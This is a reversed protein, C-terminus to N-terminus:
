TNDLYITFGQSGIKVEYESKIKNDLRFREGGKVIGWVGHCSKIGKGNGDVVCWGNMYKNYYVTCHIKSLTNNNVNIICNSRGITIISDNKNNFNYKKIKMKDNRDYHVKLEILSIMNGITISILIEGLVFHNISNQKLLYGHNIKVQMIYPNAKIDTNLNYLYYHSDKRNFYIAFILRSTTKSTFNIIVDVKTNNTNHQQKDDLVHTLNSSNNVGFLTLGDRKHRLSNLEGGANIIYTNNNFINNNNNNTNTNIGNLILTLNSRIEEDSIVINDSLLNCIPMNNNNSNNNHKLVKTTSTVNSNFISDYYNYEDNFTVQKIQSQTNYTSYTPPTQQEENPKTPKLQFLNPFLHNNTSQHESHKPTKNPNTSLPPSQSMSINFSNGKRSPSKISSSSVTSTNNNHLHNPNNSHGCSASNSSYTRPYCSIIETPKTPTQRECCSFFSKFLSTSM